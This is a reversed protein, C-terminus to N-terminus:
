SPVRAMEEVLEDQTHGLALCIAELTEPRPLVEGQIVRSVGSVSGGTLRAIDSFTLDGQWRQLVASMRAYMM